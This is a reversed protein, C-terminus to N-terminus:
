QQRWEFTKTGLEDRWAELAVLAEAAQARAEDLHGDREAQESAALATKAALLPSIDARSM